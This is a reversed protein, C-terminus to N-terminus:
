GDEHTNGPVALEGYGIWELSLAYIGRKALNICRKQKYEAGKGLPDHGNVNLVAPAKGNVNLPEYLIATSDFGPVIEFRLKRMRYGNGGAIEGLDEFKPPSNVWAQPWGHFAVDDLIQKRLRAEEETWAQASSPTPLKPISKFLYEQLQYAITEHRQVQRKM